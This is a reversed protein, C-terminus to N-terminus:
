EERVAVDSARSANVVGDDRDIFTEEKLVAFKAVAYVRDVSPCISPEKDYRYEVTPSPCIGESAGVM